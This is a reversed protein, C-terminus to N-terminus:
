LWKKNNYGNDRLSYFYFWLMTFSHGTSWTCRVITFTIVKSLKCFFARAHGAMDSAHQKLYQPFTHM